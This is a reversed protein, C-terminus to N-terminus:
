TSTSMSCCDPWGKESQESGGPERHRDPTGHQDMVSYQNNLEILKAKQNVVLIPEDFVSGSGGAVHASIGPAM